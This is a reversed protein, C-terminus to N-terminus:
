AVAIRRRTATKKHLAFPGRECREALGVAALCDAFSREQNVRQPRTSNARRWRFLCQGWFRHKFGVCDLLNAVTGGGKFRAFRRTQAANVAVEGSAVLVM